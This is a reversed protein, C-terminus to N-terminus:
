GRAILPLSFVMLAQQWDHSGDELDGLIDLLEPLVAEITDRDLRAHRDLMDPLHTPSQLFGLVWNVLTYGSMITDSLGYKEKVPDLSHPYAARAQPATKHLRNADLQQVLSQYGADQYLAKPALNLLRNAEDVTIHLLDAIEEPHM